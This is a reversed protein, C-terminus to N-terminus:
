ESKNYISFTQKNTKFAKLPTSVGAIGVERLTRVHDFDILATQMCPGEGNQQLILGEPDVIMSGGIGGYGAGNCSVVYCQQTIATAQVIIKEQIRDGTTTATPVVILEAGKLALERACEPFWIDYCIMIGVKGIGEIEFVFPKDGPQSKEYPLWPYRKRYVGVIEGKPNIVPTSNYVNKGDLEYMSGPILWTSYKNAWHSFTDTLEGPIKQALKKLESGGLGSTALEPFVVMGIQPFVKQIYQLYDEMSNLNSDMKLQGYMQVSAINLHSNMEDGNTKTTSSFM